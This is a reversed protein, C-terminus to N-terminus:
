FKASYNKIKISLYELCMYYHSTICINHIYSNDLTVHELEKQM